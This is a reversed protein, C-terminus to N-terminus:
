HGFCAADKEGVNFLMVDPFPFFPSLLSVTPYEQPNGARCSSDGSAYCTWPLEGEHASGAVVGLASGWSYECSAPPDHLAPTEKAKGPGLADLSPWICSHLSMAREQSSLALM